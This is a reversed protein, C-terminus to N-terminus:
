SEAIEAETGRYLLDLLGLFRRDRLSRRRTVEDPTYTYFGRGSKVGHNGARVLAGVKPPLGVASRVSPVLNRYVETQLDLGGFDCVELPGIAAMRFGVSGRMAADIDEASAVGRAWLDWLERYMAVQVRNVLFGPIEKRLVVPLKGMRKLLEVSRRVTGRSTRKGPVVEVTPVIHPPNFWHLVLAREPRKMATAIRSIPFSSSNSALITSDAASRELRGFLDQKLKLDERVAELVFRSPGVAERETACVTLRSLIKGVRGRREIGAAVFAELNKRVRDHLSRGLAPESDYCRVSLGAAAAAQAIGHGMTGLGVVAVTASPLASM